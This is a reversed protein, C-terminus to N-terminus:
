VQANGFFKAAVIAYDHRMKVRSPSVWKGVRNEGLVGVSWGDYNTRPDMYAVFLTFLSWMDHGDIVELRMSCKRGFILMSTDDDQFIAVTNMEERIERLLATKANEGWSVMGGASFDYYEVTPPRTMFVEGKENVLALAVTLPKSRPVFTDYVLSSRIVPHTIDGRTSTSRTAAVVEDTSRITAEVFKDLWLIQQVPIMKGSRFNCGAYAVIQSMREMSLVYNYPNLYSSKLMNQLTYTGRSTLEKIMNVITTLTLSKPVRTGDKLPGSFFCLHVNPVPFAGGSLKQVDVAVTGGLLLSITPHYMPAGIMYTQFFSLTPSNRIFNIENFKEGHFRSYRIRVLKQYAGYDAVEYVADKVVLRDPNRYSGLDRGSNDYMISNKIEVDYTNYWKVKYEIADVIVVLALVEPTLCELITSDRKVIDISGSVHFEGNRTIETYGYGKRATEQLTHQTSYTVLDGLINELQIYCVLEGNLTERCSTKGSIKSHLEFPLYDVGAYNDCKPFVPFSRIYWNHKHFYAYMYTPRHTTFDLWVGRYCDLELPLPGEGWFLTSRMMQEEEPLMHHRKSYAVVEREAVESLQRMHIDQTQGSYFLRVVGKSDREHWRGTKKNFSILDRTITKSVVEEKIPDDFLDCDIEECPVDDIQVFEDHSYDIDDSYASKNSM